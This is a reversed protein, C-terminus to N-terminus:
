RVTYGTAPWIRNPTETGFWSSTKRAPLRMSGPRFRRLFFISRPPKRRKSLESEADRNGTKRVAQIAYFYKKGYETTADLWQNAEVTTLLLNQPDEGSRRYVRHLQASSQWSVLLGEPSPTTSSPPRRESRTVVTIPVLNSWEGARGNAGYVKVGLIIEKGVWPAVPFESKVHGGENPKAELLIAKELWAERNFGGQPAEGARIEVRGIRAQKGETTLAPLTFQYIIVNGREIASLDAVPKPINLLPYMPEGIYGCGSLILFAAAAAYPLKM